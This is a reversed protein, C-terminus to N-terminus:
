AANLRGMAAEFFRRCNPAAQKVQEPDIQALLGPAHGTKHYAGKTSTRTAKKLGSFVEQKPIEEVKPNGPLAAEHFGQGYFRRLAAIDALFWAEMLQVMWFVSEELSEELQEAQRLRSFLDGTDPGESDLLLINWATPRTKLARKFDAGPTAGTAILEMRCRIRRATEYIDKLFVRFGPRLKHDGEFYIRIETVM